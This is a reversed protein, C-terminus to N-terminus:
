PCTSFFRNVQIRVRARSKSANVRILQITLVRVRARGRAHLASITPVHGFCQDDSFFRRDRLVDDPRERRRHALEVLVVLVELVLLVDDRAGHAVQHLDLRGLLEVDLAALPAEGVQRHDRRVEVELRDVLGLRAQVRHDLQGLALVDGVHHVGAVRAALALQDEAQDLLVREAVAFSAAAVLFATTRL